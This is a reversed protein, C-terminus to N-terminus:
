VCRWKLSNFIECSGITNKDDKLCCGKWAYSIKRHANKM